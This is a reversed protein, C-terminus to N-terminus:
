LKRCVNPLYDLSKKVFLRLQRDIQQKLDGLGGQLQILKKINRIKELNSPAEAYAVMCVFLIIWSVLALICWVRHRDKM